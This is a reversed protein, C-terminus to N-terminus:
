SSPATSSPSHPKPHHREALEQEQQLRTEWEQLEQAKAFLTNESEEIFAERERLLALQDEMSSDTIALLPDPAAPNHPPSQAIQQQLDAIQQDKETIAQNALTLAQRTEDLSRQLLSARDNENTAALQTQLMQERNDLLRERAAMLLESENIAREREALSARLQFLHQQQEHLHTTPDPESETSAAETQQQKDFPILNRHHRREPRTRKLIADVSLPHANRAAHTPASANM